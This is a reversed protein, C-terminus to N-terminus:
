IFNTLRVLHIMQAGDIQFGVVLISYVLIYASELTILSLARCYSISPRM